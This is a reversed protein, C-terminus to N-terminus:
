ISSLNNLGIGKELSQDAQVMLFIWLFLRFLEVSPYIHRRTGDIDGFLTLFLSISAYLFVWTGLWAWGFSKSTRSKFWSLWLSIILIFDLVYVANTEPHVTEGLLLLLERHQNEPAKFHPQIFDSKLYASKEALTTLIFGPHMMLFKGYSNLGKKIFWTDYGNDPTGDPMGLKTFYEVRTPFPFIYAELVHELSPKWRQSIKSTHNGLIFLGGLLVVATLIARTNGAKKILVLPIALLITILISYMHVDRIFLWLSFTVSFIATLIGSKLKSKNSYEDTYEIYILQALAIMIPLLSVSLSESSLISDWEAIQPTFGFIIIITCVIFKYLSNKMSGATAWALLSWGFISLINQVLVIMGFCSQSERYGEDGAAPNSTARLDCNQSRDILKFLLNMTLLRRGTFVSNLSTASVSSAIYSETDVMGISLFLSGYSSVRVWIGIFIIFLIIFNSFNNRFRGLLKGEMTTAYSRM